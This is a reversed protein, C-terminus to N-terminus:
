RCEQVDFSVDWDTSTIDTLHHFYEMGLPPDSYTDRNRGFNSSSATSESPGALFIRRLTGRFSFSKKATAKTLDSGPTVPGESM